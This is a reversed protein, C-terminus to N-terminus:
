VDVPPMEADDDDDGDSAVEEGVVEPLSDGGSSVAFFVLEVELDPRLERAILSASAGGASATLSM